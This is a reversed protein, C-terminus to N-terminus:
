AAAFRAWVPTIDDPLTPCGGLNLWRQQPSHFDSGVSATLQWRRCLDALMKQQGVDTTPTAVELGLPGIELLEEILTILKSRTFKYRTPHALVAEGGAEIVWKMATTAAPWEMAVFGPKGRVLYRKFAERKDVVVGLAVLAAAFHPRTPISNAGLQEVVADRLDIGQHKFKEFMAEARSWRVQKNSTIGAKLGDHNPDINLGLLHLVQGRWQCSLEVGDILKIGLEKAALAAESLGDLTDHDTLALMQVQNEHALALLETPSLAGDSCHSHCHLDLKM